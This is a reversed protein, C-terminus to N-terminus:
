QFDAFEVITVPADAQGLTPHGSLDLTVDPLVNRPPAPQAGKEVLAKIEALQRRMITQGSQLTRVEQRLAEIQEALSPEDASTGEPEQSVAPVVGALALLLFGPVLRSLKM